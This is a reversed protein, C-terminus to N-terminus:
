GVFPPKLGRTFDIRNAASAPKKRIIIMKLPLLTHVITRAANIPTNPKPIIRTGAINM